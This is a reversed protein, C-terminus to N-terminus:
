GGGVSVGKSAAAGSVEGATKIVFSERIENDLNALHQWDMIEKDKIFIPFTTDPLLLVSHALKKRFNEWENGVQNRWFTNHQNNTLLPWWVKNGFHGPSPLLQAYGKDCAKILDLLRGNGVKRPPFMRYIISVRHDELFIKGQEIRIRGISDTTLFEVRIGSLRTWVKTVWEMLPRETVDLEAAMLVLILGQPDDSDKMVRQLWKTWGTDGYYVLDSAMGRALALPFREAEVVWTKNTFSHATLDTSIDLRTLEWPAPCKKFYREFLYPDLSIGALFMNKVEEDSLPFAAMALEVKKWLLALHRFDAKLGDHLEPLAVPVRFWNLPWKKPLHTKDITPHSNSFDIGLQIYKQVVEPFM